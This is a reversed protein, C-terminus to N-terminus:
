YLPQSITGKLTIIYTDEAFNGHGDFLGQGTAGAFRGTGGNVVYTGIGHYIVSGSSIPCSVDSITLMIKSGDDSSTLTETHTTVFGNACSAAGTAVVYGQNTSAGLQSATGKGTLTLPPAGNTTIITGSYTAMFPIQKSAFVAPLSVSSLLLAFALVSIIRRMSLQRKAKTELVAIRNKKTHIKDM